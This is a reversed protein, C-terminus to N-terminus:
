LIIYNSCNCIQRNDHHQQQQQQQQQQHHHHNHLINTAITLNEVSVLPARPVHQDRLNLVNLFVPLPLFLMAKDGPAWEAPPARMEDVGRRPRTPEPKLDALEFVLGAEFWYSLIGSKWIISTARIPKRCRPLSNHYNNKKM